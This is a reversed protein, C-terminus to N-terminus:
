FKYKRPSYCRKSYVDEIFVFSTIQLIKSQSNSNRRKNDFYKGSFRDIALVCPSNVLNIQHQQCISNQKSKSTTLMHTHTHPHHLQDNQPNTGALLKKNQKGAACTTYKSLLTFDAPRCISHAGAQKSAQRGGSETHQQNRSERNVPLRTMRDTTSGGCCCRRGGCEV